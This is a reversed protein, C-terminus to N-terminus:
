ICDHTIQHPVMMGVLEENSDGAPVEIQLM